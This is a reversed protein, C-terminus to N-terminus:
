WADPVFAGLRRHFARISEQLGDFEAKSKTLEELTQKYYTSKANELDSQLSNVTRKAALLEVQSIVGDKALPAKIDLEQQALSLNEEFRAVSTKLDDRREHFLQREKAVIDPRRQELGPPVDFNDKNAAEATLRSIKALYVDYKSLNEKYSSNFITDDIRILVDGKQVVDGVKVLIESLLGGELSQIEQINKSPIVQGLGQARTDIKAFGAWLFFVIIFFLFLYLIRNAWPLKEDILAAKCDEVYDLDDKFLEKQKEQLEKIEEQSRPESKFPNLNLKM